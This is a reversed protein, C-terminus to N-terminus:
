GLAKPWANTPAMNHARAALPGITRPLENRATGGVETYLTLPFANHQRGHATTLLIKSKLSIQAPMNTSIQATHISPDCAHKHAAM